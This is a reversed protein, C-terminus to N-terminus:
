IKGRIYTLLAAHGGGAPNRAADRLGAFSVKLRVRIKSATGAAQIPATTAYGQDVLCAILTIFRQGHRLFVSKLYDNEAVSYDDVLTISTGTHSRAACDSLMQVLEDDLEGANDCVTSPYMSFPYTSSIKESWGYQADEQIVLKFPGVSASIDADLWTSGSRIRMETARLDIAKSSFKTLDVLRFSM